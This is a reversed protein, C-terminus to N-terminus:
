LCTSTSRRRRVAVAGVALLGTALLVVTAPEPVATVSVNDIHVVLGPVPDPGAHGLGVDIAAIESGVGDSFPIEGIFVGNVFGSVTRNQFDYLASLHAWEGFTYPTSARCLNPDACAARAFALGDGINVGIVAMPFFAPDDLGIGVACSGPDDFFGSACASVPGAVNIDYSLRILATGSALPDYNLNQEYFGVSGFPPFPELQAGDLRLSQVGSRPLETSITAAKVSISDFVYWGGQGQLLGPAFTPPEFGTAFLIPSAQALSTVGVMLGVNLVALIARHTRRAM